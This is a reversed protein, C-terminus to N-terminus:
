ARKRRELAAVFDSARTPSHLRKTAALAVRALARVDSPDTANSAIEPAADGKARDRQVHMSAESADSTLRGTALENAVARAVRTACGIALEGLTTAAVNTMSRDLARLGPTSRSGDIAIAIARTALEEHTAEATVVSAVADYRPVMPVAACVFDDDEPRRFLNMSDDTSWAWPYDESCRMFANMSLATRPACARRAGIPLGEFAKARFVRRVRHTLTREHWAKTEEDDEDDGYADDVDADTTLADAANELSEAYEAARACTVFDVRPM